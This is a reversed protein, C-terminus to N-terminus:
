ETRQTINGRLTHSEIQWWTRRRELAFLWKHAVCWTYLPITYNPSTVSHQPVAEGGSEPTRVFEPTPVRTSSCSALIRMGRENTRWHRPSHRVSSFRDRPYSAPKELAADFQHSNRMPGGVRWRGCSHLLLPRPSRGRCGGTLQRRGVALWLPPSASRAARALPRPCSLLAVPEPATVRNSHLTQM